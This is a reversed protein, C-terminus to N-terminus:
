EEYGKERRLERIEDQIETFGEDEGKQNELEGFGQAADSDDVIRSADGKYLGKESSQQLALDETSGVPDFKRWIKEGFLNTDWFNLQKLTDRM